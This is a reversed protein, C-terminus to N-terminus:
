GRLGLGQGAVRLHEARLDRRQAVVFLRALALLFGLNGESLREVDERELLGVRLGGERQGLLLIERDGDLYARM